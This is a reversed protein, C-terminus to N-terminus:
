NFETLPLIVYVQIEYVKKAQYQLVIVKWICTQSAQPCSM